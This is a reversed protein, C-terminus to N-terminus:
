AITVRLPINCKTEMIQDKFSILIGDPSSDGQMAIKALIRGTAKLQEESVDAKKVKDKPLLLETVMAYAPENMTAIVTKMHEKYLMQYVGKEAARFVMSSFNFPRGFDPDHQYGDTLISVLKEPATEFPQLAHRFAEEGLTARINDMTAEVAKLQYTDGRLPGAPRKIPDYSEAVAHVIKAATSDFLHTIMDPFQQYNLLADVFDCYVQKNSAAKYQEGFEIIKQHTRASQSTGTTSARLEPSELIALKADMVTKRKQAM